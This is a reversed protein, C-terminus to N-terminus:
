LCMTEIGNKNTIAGVTGLLANGTVLIEADKLPKSTEDQLIGKIGGTTTQAYINVQFIILLSLISIIFKKTVVKGM